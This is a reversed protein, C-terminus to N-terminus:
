PTSGDISTEGQDDDEAPPIRLVINLAEAIKVAREYGLKTRSTRCIVDDGKRVLYTDKETSWDWVYRSM